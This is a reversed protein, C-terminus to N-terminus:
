WPGVQVFKASSLVSTLGLIIDYGCLREYNNKAFANRAMDDGMKVVLSKYKILVDKNPALM